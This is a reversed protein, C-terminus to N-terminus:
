DKAIIVIVSLYIMLIDFKFTINRNSFDRDGIKLTRSIFVWSDLVMDILM